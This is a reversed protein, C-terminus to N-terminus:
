MVIFPKEEDDEIRVIRGPKRPEAQPVSTASYGMVMSGFVMEHECMGNKLLWERVAPEQCTWHLQNVWCAGLGLSFAALQMNELANACDAMSNPHDVPAIVSILVPAHFTFCYNPNRKAKVISKNQYVGPILERAALTERVLAELGELKPGRHAVLFRPVQHRGGNPAYLGCQLILDVKELEVPTELYARISRRRLILDITENRYM